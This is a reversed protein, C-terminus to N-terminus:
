PKWLAENLRKRLQEHEAPQYAARRRSGEWGEPENRALKESLNRIEHMLSTAFKEYDELLNENSM